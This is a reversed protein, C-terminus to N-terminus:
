MYVLLWLQVLVDTITRVPPPPPQPIPIEAQLPLAHDSQFSHYRATAVEPNATPSSPQSMIELLCALLCCPTAALASSEAAHM